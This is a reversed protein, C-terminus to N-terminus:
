KIIIDKDRLIGVSQKWNQQKLELKEIAAEIVLDINGLPIDEYTPLIRDLGAQADTESFIRRKIADRYIKHISQLGKGTPDWALGLRPEFDNKMLWQEILHAETLARSIKEPSHPMVREVVISRMAAVQESM